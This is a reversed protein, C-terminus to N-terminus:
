ITEVKTKEWFNKKFIGESFINIIKMKLKIKDKTERSGTEIAIQCTKPIFSILLDINEEKLQKLFPMYEQACLNGELNVKKSYKRTYLNRLKKESFFFPHSIKSNTKMPLFIKENLKNKKLEEKYIKPLKQNKYFDKRLKNEKGEESKPVWQWDNVIIAIKVQKGKKLTYKALKIGFKWTELPFYGMYPHNKVTEKIEKNKIEQFIAPILKKSNKDQILSFHGAQIVILGKTKDIEKTLKNFIKKM